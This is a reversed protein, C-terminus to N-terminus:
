KKSQMSGILSGIEAVSMTERVSLWSDSTTVQINGLATKVNPDQSTGKAVSILGTIADKADQVSATNSFHADMRASVTLGPLDVSFGIADINQFATLSLGPQQPAAKGLQSRLSEPPAFAGTILATGFRDLTEIVSGSLGKQDGRRVDITDQVAKATGLVIQSPSLFVIEFKDQAGAYVKFGKYDSTTLTQKGQEQIRAVLTSENFTGTVIVGGYMDSETQGTSEVDAFFIAKSVTTLDVGTKDVIQNLADTATQPWGPKGKALEGYAVIVASNNVIKDVQMQVVTNATAPILTAPTGNAPGCSLVVPVILFMALCSALLKKVM